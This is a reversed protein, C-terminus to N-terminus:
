DTQQYEVSALVNRYCKVVKVASQHETLKHLPESQNEIHADWICVMNDNAGSALHRGDPSWALGCVEQTHSTLTGVHHDRVRVDHHHIASSRSGSFPVCYWPGRVLYSFNHTACASPISPVNEEGGVEFSIALWRDRWADRCTRSARTTICTPNALGCHCPFRERCKRRM